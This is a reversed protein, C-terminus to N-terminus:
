FKDKVAQWTIQKANFEKLYKEIDTNPPFAAIDGRMPSKLAEGEIFTATTAEILQAKTKTFDAVFISQYKINPNEKMYKVLCSIDDFKLTKGKETLLAAAFRGDTITMKCFLCKDYNLKIPDPQGGQCSVLLLAALAAPLPTKKKSLIKQIWKYEIFTAVLICLGAAVLLWGGVDPISYAGFNLLQKYGLVPPQYAMGPVKIAANPDLNHGYNYNWRYFDVMSLVGFATFTLLLALLFKKNNIFVVLFSLLAFTGFFYPLLTFEIFDETHLTKMGIYHNLGNIIEVDGGIKNAWIELALGEPYQPAELEIRWLPFFISAVFLISALILLTKSAATIHRNNNM